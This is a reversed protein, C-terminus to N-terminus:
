ETNKLMKTTQKRDMEGGWGEKAFCSPQRGSKSSNKKKEPFEGDRQDKIRKMFNNGKQREELNIYVIRRKEENTWQRNTMTHVNNHETYGSTKAAQQAVTIDANDWM